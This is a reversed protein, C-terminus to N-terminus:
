SETDHVRMILSLPVKVDGMKLLLVGEDDTEVGDVKGISSTYSAVPEGDEDTARVSFTYPGDPLLLGADNRGDWVFEHHGNGAPVSMSRVLKGNADTIRLEASAAEGLLTYAGIGEGEKLALSNGDAEVWRGILGVGAALQNYAQLATLHELNQNTLIQQEVNAFGILQQTFEATDMPNLPDQNQLQTTLLLLFQDFTENMASDGAFRSNATSDGSQSSEAASQLPNVSTLPSLEM